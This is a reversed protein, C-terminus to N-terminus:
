ALGLEALADAVSSDARVDPPVADGELYRWGRVMGVHRPQVWTVEPKMYIRHLPAYIPKIGWWQNRIVDTIPLRFVTERKHAFYVSGGTLEEARKPWRSTWTGLDYGQGARERIYDCVEGVTTMGARQGWLEPVLPRLLHLSM